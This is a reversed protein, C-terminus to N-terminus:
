ILLHFIKKYLFSFLIFRRKSQGQVTVTKWTTKSCQRRQRFHGAALKLLRDKGTNLFVSKAILYFFCLLEQQLKLEIGIM